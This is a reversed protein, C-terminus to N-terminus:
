LSGSFAKQLISKKFEELDAIKKQYVGELKKTEVSLKNLKKVIKEQKELSPFLIKQNEIMPITLQPISSGTNSFKLSSVFYNLFDINIIGKNPTAVILRIIPYFPIRRVTPYGITGRASITVSPESVRKIDTYGYLANEGIGNSFIPISFKDTEFKSFNDKPVDGGAFLKVCVKKLEMEEWDEGPNAFINELYSEFLQKSNKLNKETNEKAKVVQSFTDDLIKVIRKQEALLPFSIEIERFNNLSVGGILGFIQNKFLKSFEDTLYWYYVYKPDVEKGTEIAFLKNGFCIDKYNFAM